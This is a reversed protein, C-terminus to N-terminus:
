WELLRQDRGWLRRDSLSLMAPTPPAKSLIQGLGRVGCKRGPVLPPSKVWSCIDSNSSFKGGRSRGFAICSFSKANLDRAKGKVLASGWNRWRYFPILTGKGYTTAILCFIVHFLLYCLYRVCPWHELFDTVELYCDAQPCSSYRFWLKGPHEPM